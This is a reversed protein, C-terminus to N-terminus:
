EGAQRVALRSRCVRRALDGAYSSWSRDGALWEGIGRGSAAVVEVFDERSCGLPELAPRWQAWLWLGVCTGEGLGERWNAGAALADRMAARLDDPEDPIELFTGGPLEVAEVGAITGARHPGPM